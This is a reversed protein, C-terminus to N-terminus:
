IQSQKVFTEIRTRATDDVSVDCVAILLVEEEDAVLCQFACCSWSVINLKVAVLKVIDLQIFDLLHGVAEAVDERTRSPETPSQM